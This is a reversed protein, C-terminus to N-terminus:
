QLAHASSVFPFGPNFFRRQGAELSRFVLHSGKGLYRSEDSRDVALSRPDTDTINLRHASGGSHCFTLAAVTVVAPDGHVAHEGQRETHNSSTIPVSRSGRSVCDPRLFQSVLTISPAERISIESIVVGDALPPEESVSNNSAV